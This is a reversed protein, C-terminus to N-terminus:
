AARCDYLIQGADRDPGMGTAGAATGDGARQGSDSTGQYASADVAACHSTVWTQRETVPETATSGGWGGARGGGGGGGLVVYRLEGAAVLASLRDVSPFPVQGTFGGMPLVDAGAVLFQGASSAGQVAALYKEGDHHARLYAVLARVQASPETGTGDLGGGPAGGGRTGEPPSGPMAGGGPVAGGGPLPGNGPLAAGRHADRGPGQGAGPGEGTEPGASPARSSGRYTADTTSVAWVAPALLTAVIALAGGVAALLLARGRVVCAALLAVLAVGGVGLLAPRLWPRFDPFHGCLSVTWALQALLVAPVLWRSGARERVLRWLRPAAAAALAAVAPAVAVVYFSHAVRGTSFAVVHVTLWLTWLLYGGRTADVRGGGGRRLSRWGLLGLVAGVATLPYLWGVQPAVQDGLMYWWNEPGGSPGGGGAGPGNVSSTSEVGFRSSLNYQFIMSLLSDNTSGDAYPRASAPTVAFLVVQWLSVAVTAAGALGLRVLRRPLRGPAAVLYAVGIAPLVGWAQVMKTQFALGVWLACLLLPRLRGTEVARQGADAALVLLLVLVGDSIQSHALAALVPTTALVAAALLGAVPGQWRRVVRHLVLVALVAAIVQPLVVAWTHFGFLRVSLAQVMFAGPLKDLTVSAAPDYGGYVWARWSQSMSRVAPAYYEHLPVRTIGWAYVTAATGAILALLYPAWRPSGVGTRPAGHPPPGTTAPAHASDHTLDTLAM